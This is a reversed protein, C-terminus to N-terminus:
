RGVYPDLLFFSTRAEVVPKYHLRPCPKYSMQVEM